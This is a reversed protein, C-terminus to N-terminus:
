SNSPKDELVHVQLPDCAPGEIIDGDITFRSGHCPCDWSIDDQNWTVRCKMHPCLSSLAVLGRDPSHYIALTAGDVTVIEGKGPPIKSLEAKTGPTLFTRILETAVATNEKAWGKISKRPTFRRPDFLSTGDHHKNQIQNAIIDAAVAAWVLGDAAFGTAVFVNDHGSRGIYPLMDASKYQQASWKYTGASTRFHRKLYSGVQSYYDTNEKGKGTKHKGGVAIVFNKTDYTYTRLSQSDNLLWYIGPAFEKDVLETAVGYERFVEMEAQLMNIGKPTHTAQIINEASIDGQATKIGSESPLIQTVTSEEFILGGLEDIVKALGRAFMCPNFQAQNNIRLAKILSMPLGPVHDILNADIGAAQSIKCESQLKELCGTDQNTICWHLPVRQFECDISFRSVTEEIFLLAEQRMTVVKCIDEDSWKEALASLRGSLTCYLNGTSNGTSSEAVKGAEVVAVRRGADILKLATTLGTIGAGIIVDDVAISGRLTPYHHIQATSKSWIANM